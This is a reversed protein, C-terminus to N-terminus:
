RECSDNSCGIPCEGDSKGFLSWDIKTIGTLLTDYEEKTIGEYPAQKYAGKKSHPLMSCSKIKSAHAALAKEIQNGETEPNFYVTVSVMNDSYESQLMELLSFQEWVTVEEASRTLGQDIPFEFIITNDSYTDKEHKYGALKLIPVIQANESMRVRRIAYRFTPFHMGPSVGTLLSISGSPKVTTVRISAPVGAKHALETNVNRVTHYGARCLRTLETSGIMEYLDAIGSMSVGIRRNRSIVENTAEWHTPLLSITSSYFTAFKLANHFTDEHVIRQSRSESVRSEKGTMPKLRLIPILCRTPFVESLNCLEFNELPIESCPNCLTATDPETERTRIAMKGNIDTVPRVRGYRNVNLQNFIGPEGNDKIRASILPLMHFDETKTLKVTNNSMWGIAQREPNVAYDKLHRFVIDDPKGLVIESSRRINGAVVCVGIANLIDVVCRTTNYQKVHPHDIATKAIKDVYEKFTADDMWENDCSRLKITQDVFVTASSVVGVSKYQIYTDLYAEVRIHLKILPDSGSATGGFSKLPTGKARIASYDFKPFPTDQITYAALLLRLSEVWGERSDPIVYIFTNGKNPVFVEGTWETDCGIGCGYMLADFVWTMGEILNKSTCAGCNYLAGSGRSYMFESGCAWLGRGPPLFQMKFMATAFDRAFPQWSEDDWALRNKIFHDKRISLVGETVRIVTDHWMEQEGNPKLRSYTRMYVCEGLGNFGFDPKLKELYQKTGANLLFRETVFPKQPSDTKNPFLDQSNMSLTKKLIFHKSYTIIFQLLFNNQIFM